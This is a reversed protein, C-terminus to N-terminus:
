KKKKQAFKKFFKPNSKNNNKPKQVDFKIKKTEYKEKPIERQKLRIYVSERLLTYVVSTIPVSILLGVLGFFGSFLSISSIVFIPPLGINSGVVRPFILNGEIQQLCIMFVVFWIAQVPSVTLVFLTGICIGIGVGFMPIWSFIAILVGILSAYPFGFIFMGIITLSGLILCEMMQGTICNYFSKNTLSAVKIIYDAVKTNCFAYLTKKADSALKEKRMLIYISLVIGLFVSVTINVISTVMGMVSGFVNVADNQFFNILVQSIANWDISLSSIFDRIQENDESISNLWQQINEIIGPISNAISTLSKIIEPILITLFIGIVAMFILISLFLAIPRRLKEKIKSVPKGNKPVFLEKEIRKMPVSLFFTCCGAIIFPLLVYLMWNFFNFVIDMHQMGLYVIIAVVVIILIREMNKRNLEM